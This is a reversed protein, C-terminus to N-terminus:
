VKVTIPSPEVWGTRERINYEGRVPLWDGFQRDAMHLYQGEFAWNEGVQLRAIANILCRITALEPCITPTLVGFAVYMRKSPSNSGDHPNQFISIMLDFKSPGGKITLRETIKLTM